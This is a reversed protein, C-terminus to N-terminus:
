TPFHQPYILISEVRKCLSMIKLVVDLNACHRWDSQFCLERVRISVLMIRRSMAYHSFFGHMSDIDSRSFISDPFARIIFTIASIPNHVIQFYLGFVM